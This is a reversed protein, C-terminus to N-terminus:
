ILRKIAERVHLYLNVLEPVETPYPINQEAMYTICLNYMDEDECPILTRFSCEEKCLTVDNPDVLCAMDHTGYLRPFSYM